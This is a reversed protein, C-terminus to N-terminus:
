LNSLFFEPTVMHGHIGLEQQAEELARQERAMTEQNLNDWAVQYLTMNGRLDTALFDVEYGSKTIYYQIQHQSRRLELYIFNEFIRGINKSFSNSCAYYLGSDVLYIKKPSTQTKRISESFVPLFFALFADEVYNMYDHITNKSVSIGQSKLDNYYKNVSFLSAVQNIMTKILYKILAINTIHYREVIDRFIVVDVYNQLIQLRYEFSLDIVEPFGGIELYNQLNKYLKDQNKQASLYEPLVINQSSLYEKFSFPWVELTISRGRLSTAIEKSLLKASSGTLYLNVQKSDLLRRIVIAWNEVNQIEDFFLYCLQDHNEPHLKYFAEVLDSLSASDLPLLRDDEFNVYFIRSPEIGQDLYHKITQLCLYTKGSRRMGIAVKIKDRIQAFTAERTVGHGIRALRDALEVQLTQTLKVFDAM